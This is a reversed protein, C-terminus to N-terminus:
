ENLRLLKVKKSFHNTMNRQTVKQKHGQKVLATKNLLNLFASICKIKFNNKEKLM